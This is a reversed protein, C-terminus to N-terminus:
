KGQQNTSGSGDSACTAPELSCARLTAYLEAGGAIALLRRMSFVALGRGRAAGSRYRKPLLIPALGCHASRECPAERTRLKRKPDFEAAHPEHRALLVSRSQMVIIFIM